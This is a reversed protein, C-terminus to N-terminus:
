ETLKKMVEERNIYLREVPKELPAFGQLTGNVADVLATSIILGDRVMPVIYYFSDLKDLRQVLIPKSPRAAQLANAYIKHEFLGHIRAQDITIRSLNEPDIIRNNEPKFKHRYYALDGIMEITQPENYVAVTTPISGQIFAVPTLWGEMWEGLGIYENSTNDPTGCVDDDTHPPPHNEGRPLNYPLPPSPDNINVGLLTFKKVPDGEIHVGRAVVWHSAQKVLVAIPTKKNILLLSKLSAIVKSFSCSRM